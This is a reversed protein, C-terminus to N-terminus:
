WPVVEVVKIAELSGDGDEDYVMFVVARGYVPFRQINYLLEGAARTGDIGIGFALLVWRGHEDRIIEVVGFDAITRGEADFKLTYIRGSSTVYLYNDLATRGRFIQVPILPSGDAARSMNYHYSVLNVGPSGTAIINSSTDIMWTSGSTENYGVVWTDIAMKLTGSTSGTSVAGAILIGSLTDITHTMDLRFRPQSWGIVVLTQNVTEGYRFPYPFFSLDRGMLAYRAAELIIGNTKDIVTNVIRGNEDIGDMFGKSTDTLINLLQTVMFRTFDSNFIAHLGVAMKLFIVPTINVEGLNPATMVWARWSGGVMAVIYEYVYSPDALGTNGESFATLKGTNVYRQLHAQYTVEALWDISPDPPLEFIIHLLPDGTVTYQPLEVGGYTSVRPLTKIWRAEDLTTRIGKYEQFGWLEFAKAVLYSYLDRGGSWNEVLVRYNTRERIISDIRSGLDPRMRKLNWLSILLKSSDYINTQAEGWPTGDESKYWLYPLRNEKMQRNELFTIIRDVRYNFGWDGEKPILGLKYADIVAQLYIGLDWDTFYPWYLGAKHLGTSAYVGVGVEFYRWAKSALDLWFGRGQLNDSSSIAGREFALRSGDTLYLSTLIIGILIFTVSALRIRKNGMLTSSRFM